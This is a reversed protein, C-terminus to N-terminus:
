NKILKKEVQPSIYTGHTWKILTVAQVASNTAHCLFLPYNAPAIAVAWRMFLSSYICLVGTMVPDIDKIPRTPFNAIGAIPILWNAAAGVYGILRVTSQSVM